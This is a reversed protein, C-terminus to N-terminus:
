PYITDWRTSTGAPPVFTSRCTQLSSLPQSPPLSLSPGCCVLRSPVISVPDQKGIVIIATNEKTLKGNYPWKYPDADVFTQGEETAMAALRDGSFGELTNNRILSFSVSPGILVLVAAVENKKPVGIM